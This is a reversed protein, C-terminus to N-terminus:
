NAPTADIHSRHVRRIVLHDYWIAGAIHEEIPINAALELRLWQARCGSSPIEFDAAFSSWDTTGIVPESAGLSQHDGEACFVHWLMGRENVLHDAKVMGTLQYDGPPLVLLKSVQRYHVRRNAFLVRLGKNLENDGTNAITTDAGKIPRIVWDFPLGSVPREFGGNYVYPLAKLQSTPLFHLWALFALEFEGAGILQDLYPKLETARPPQATQRLGSLVAYAAAPSSAQRPLESLFWQRWPPDGGLLEVLAPRSAPDKALLILAPLVQENLDPRTRMLADAHKVADAFAGAGVRRNFLWIQVGPDRSSRSGALQMLKDAREAQGQLDAVLGLLHIASEELPNAALARRALTAVSQLDKDTEAAAFRQQALTVLATASDSRWALAGQPDTLARTDAATTSITSWGLWVLLLAALIVGIAQVRRQQMISLGALTEEEWRQGAVAVAHAAGRRM